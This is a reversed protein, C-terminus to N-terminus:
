VSPMAPLCPAPRRLGSTNSWQLRRLCPKGASRRGRGRCLSARYGSLQRGAPHRNARRRAGGQAPACRRARGGLRQLRRRAPDRRRALGADARLRDRHCRGGALVRDRRGRRGRAGRGRRHLFPVGFYVECGWTRAEAYIPLAAWIREATPTDLLRARIAVTGARILIERMAGERRQGTRRRPRCRTM